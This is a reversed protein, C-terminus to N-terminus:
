LRQKLFVININKWPLSIIILKQITITIIEKKITKKIAMHEANCVYMGSNKNYKFDDNIKSNSHTVM